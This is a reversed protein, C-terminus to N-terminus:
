TWNFTFLVIRSEPEYMLIIADAGDECWNYGAVEAIHIFPKGQYSISNPDYYDNMNLAPHDFDSALYNVSFAPPPNETAWNDDTFDGGLIDLFANNNPLQAHEQFFQKAHQYNERMKAEKQLLYADVKHFPTNQFYGEQGLFVYRNDDSLRFALWNPCTFENHYETTTYGIYCDYPEIPNLMHVVTGAWEPNFVALDISLLPIFHKSLWAQEPCFVAEAEPFPTLHENLVTINTTEPFM